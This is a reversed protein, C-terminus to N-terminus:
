NITPLSRDGKKIQIAPQKKKRESLHLCGRAIRRSRSCRESLSVRKNCKSKSHVLYTEFDTIFTPLIEKLAIDSVHYRSQLFDKLHGYVARYKYLTNKAKLGCDVKKVYDELFLDYAKMLTQWRYELGLFANRVKEATVFSDREMIEQYHRTIAARLKDLMRNTERATVSKGVARGGKVGWLTPDISVKCSFQAQTGDVTIRGMISSTGDKKVKDKKLYFIVSFTSRM